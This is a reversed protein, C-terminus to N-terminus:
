CDLCYPQLDFHQSTINNKQLSCMVHFAWSSVWFLCPESRELGKSHTCLISWMDCCFSQESCLNRGVNKGCSKVIDSYNTLCWLMWKWMKTGHHSKVEMNYFSGFWFTFIILNGGCACDSDRLAYKSAICCGLYDSRNKSVETSIKLVPSILIALFLEPM